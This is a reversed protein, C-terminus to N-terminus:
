PISTEKRNLTCCDLPQDGFTAANSEALRNVFRKIPNAPRASDELSVGLHVLERRISERSLIERYYEVSVINQAIDVSEVGAVAGLGNALADRDSASVTAALRFEDTVLSLGEIMNWGRTERESHAEAAVKREPGVAV